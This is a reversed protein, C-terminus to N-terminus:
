PASDEWPPPQEPIIEYSAPRSVGPKFRRVLFRDKGNSAKMYTVRSPEHPPKNSFITEPDISVEELLHGGHDRYFAKQEDLDESSWEVGPLSSTEGFDGYGSYRPTVKNCQTCRILKEM